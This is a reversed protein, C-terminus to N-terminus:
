FLSLKDKPFFPAFSMRSSFRSGNDAKPYLADLVKELSASDAFPICNENDVKRGSVSFGDRELSHIADVEFIRKEKKALTNMIKIATAAIQRATEDSDAAFICDGYHSEDWCLSVGLGFKKFFIRYLVFTKVTTTM